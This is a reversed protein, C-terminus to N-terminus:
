DLALSSLITGLWCCLVVCCLWGPSYYFRLCDSNFGLVIRWWCKCSSSCIPVLFRSMTVADSHLFGGLFLLRRVSAWHGNLYQLRILNTCTIMDMIVGMGAASDTGSRHCETYNDNSITDDESVLRSTWLRVSIVLYVTRQSSAHPWVELILANKFNVFPVFRDKQLWSFM